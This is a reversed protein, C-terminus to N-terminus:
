PKPVAATTIGSVQVPANSNTYTYSANGLQGNSNLGWARLTGDALIALGHSRGSAIEVAPNASTIDSVQVPTNSQTNSTNGLQGQANFGWALVTGDALLALSHYDGGAIEVAPNGSTIGSVPKPTLSQTTSGNGLQGYVNYGWALVTGDALLALSHYIGSAIEVAPNASTIGSVMVPANSQTKSNNGLQGQANYGWALVTGDALLALSHLNGGAIEVAPNASTIGSVQVPANSNTTSKNGLQGQANNGWARVTGDALLALSHFGGGAIEVAPNASTIVSVQAPVRSETNLSFYGLQGYQNSGWARVTGDALLALSHYQGGAIEVAPNASTIVSVRVPTTSDTDTSGNGLQGNNNWGWARVTGDALLALSHNGSAAAAHGTTVTKVSQTALVTGTGCAQGTYATLTHTGATTLEVRFRNPFSGSSINTVSVGADGCLVANVPAANIVDGVADAPLIDYFAVLSHGNNYRFRTYNGIKRTTPDVQQVASRLLTTTNIPTLTLDLANNQSKIVKLSQSGQSILVSAASYSKVTFTHTGASVYLNVPCGGATCNLSALSLTIPAGSDVAVTLSATKNPNLYQPSLAKLNPLILRVLTQDPGLTGITPITAPDTTQPAAPQSCASLALLAALLIPRLNV